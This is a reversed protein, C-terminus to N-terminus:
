KIGAGIENEIRNGRGWEAGGWRGYFQEVGGSGECIFEIAGFVNNM